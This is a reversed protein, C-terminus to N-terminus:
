SPKEVTDGSQQLPLGQRGVSPDHDPASTCAIRELEGRMDSGESQTQLFTECSNSCPYHRAPSAPMSLRFLRCAIRNIRFLLRKLTGGTVATVSPLQFLRQKAESRHGGPMPAYACVPAPGDEPLSACPEANRTQAQRPEGQGVAGTEIWGRSPLPMYSRPENKAWGLELENRTSGELETQIDRPTRDGTDTWLFDGRNEARRAGPLERGDRYHDHVNTRVRQPESQARRQSDLREQACTASVASCHASDALESPGSRSRRHTLQKM